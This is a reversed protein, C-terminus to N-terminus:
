KKLKKPKKTPAEAKAEAMAADILAPVAAEADSVAESLASEPPRGARRKPKQMIGSEDLASKVPALAAEGLLRAQRVPLELAAALGALEDRLSRADAEGLEKPSLAARWAAFAGRVQAVVPAAFDFAPDSVMRKVYGLNLRKEFDASFKGFAKADARRLAPLKLTAYLAELVPSRSGAHFTIGAQLKEVADVAAQQLGRAHEERTAELEPLATARSLTDGVAERAVGLLEVAAGLWEKEAKLGPKGSLSAFAKRLRQHLVESWAVLEFADPLSLATMAPAVYWRGAPTRM